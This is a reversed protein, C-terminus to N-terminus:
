QLSALIGFADLRGWSRRVVIAFSRNTSIAVGKPMYFAAASGVGDTYGSSSGAITLVTGVIQGLSASPLRGLPATSDVHSRHTRTYELSISRPGRNSPPGQPACSVRALVAVRALSALSLLLCSQLICRILYPCHSTNAPAAASRLCQPSGCSPAVVYRFPIPADSAEELSPPPGSCISPLVLCIVAGDISM